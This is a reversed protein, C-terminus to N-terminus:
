GALIAVHPLSLVYFLFQVGIIPSGCKMRIALNDTNLKQEQTNYKAIRENIPV